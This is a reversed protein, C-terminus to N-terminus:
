TSQALTLTDQEIPAISTGDSLKIQGSTVVQDGQNLGEKIEILGNYRLGVKVSVRKAILNKQNDSQAVFVTDGYATYTVAT